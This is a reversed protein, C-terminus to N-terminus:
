SDNDSADRDYVDKTLESLDERFGNYQCYVADNFKAIVNNTCYIDAVDEDIYFTGNCSPIFDEDDISNISHLYKTTGADSMKIKKELYTVILLLVIIM